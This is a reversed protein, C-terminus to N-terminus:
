EHESRLPTYGDLCRGGPHIAGPFNSNVPTSVPLSMETTLPNDRKTLRCTQTGFPTECGQKRNQFSGIPLRRECNQRLHSITCPRTSGTKAPQRSFFTTPPFLLHTEFAQIVGHRSHGVRQEALLRQYTEMEGEVLWKSMWVVDLMM